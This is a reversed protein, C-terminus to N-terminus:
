SSRSPLARRELQFRPRDDAASPRAPRRASPRPDPITLGMDPDALRAEIKRGAITSGNLAAVADVAAAQPAISVLGHTKPAGSTPDRAIFAAVVIGYPDFAEALQADSYGSPLNAVFVNGRFKQPRM